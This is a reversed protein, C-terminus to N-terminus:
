NRYVTTTSTGTPSAADPSTYTTTSSTTAAPMPKEVTTNSRITCAGLALGLSAILVLSKLSSNM